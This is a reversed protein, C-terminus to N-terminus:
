NNGGLRNVWPMVHSPCHLRRSQEMLSSADSHVHAGTGPYMRAAQNPIYELNIADAMAIAVRTREGAKPFVTLFERGGRIVGDNDGYVSYAEILRAHLPARETSAPFRSDFLQVLEAARARHFYAVSASDNTAFHSEPSSSNLVLSLIGNLFGPGPDLQAIDSYLSLDGAGFRMPQEPATLLL